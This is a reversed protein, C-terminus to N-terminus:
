RLREEPRIQEFGAIAEWLRNKLQIGISTTWSNIITVNM